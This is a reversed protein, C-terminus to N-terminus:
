LPGDNDLKSKKQIQKGRARYNGEKGKELQETERKRKRRWGTVTKEQAGGEFSM